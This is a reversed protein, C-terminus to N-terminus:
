RLRVPGEEGSAARVRPLAQPRPVHQPDSTDNDCTIADGKITCGGAGKCTEGVTFKNDKGCELAAKRDATCAVDGVQSCGDGIASISNDCAFTSGSGSCGGGKGDAGACSMTTYKGDGGCFLGTAPDLCAQDGASCSDGVKPKCGVLTLLVGVCLPVFWLRHGAM